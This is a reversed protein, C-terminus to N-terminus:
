RDTTFVRQLRFLLTLEYGDAIRPDLHCDAEAIMTGDGDRCAVVHSGSAVVQELGDGDVDVDPQVDAVALVDLLTGEAMPDAGPIEAVPWAGLQRLRWTSRARADDIILGPLTEAGADATPLVAARGSVDWWPPFIQLGMGFRGIPLRGDLTRGEVLLPGDVVPDQMTRPDEFSVPQIEVTGEEMCVDGGPVTAILLSVRGLESPDSSQTVHIVAVQPETCGVMRLQDAIIGAGEVENVTEGVRTTPDLYLRVVVFHEDIPARTAAEGECAALVLLLGLGFAAHRM